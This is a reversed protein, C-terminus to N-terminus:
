GERAEVYDCVVRNFHRVVLEEDQLHFVRKAGSGIVSQIKEHTFADERLTDRLGCKGFEQSFVEGANRAPPNYIRIEWISRDVALPWINYTFYTGRLLGVFLNPFVHYLDFAGHWKMGEGKGDADEVAFADFSSAGFRMAAAAVPSPEYGQPAHSSVVAHRGYRKLAAHRFLQGKSAASRALTKEHLYPVHWGELQAETLLKWNVTEDVEYVYSLKMSEFPYAGFAQDVPSLYDALSEGPQEALNVFLFGRWSECAIPTLGNQAPDVDFFRDRDTVHVLRGQTDYTWAHFRCVLRGDCHGREEWAVPNGRHSCMNHFARVQGDEGRVLLVSTRGVALDRVLYDGPRALEEERGVNIWVRRFIREREREFFEASVYSEVAVPATGLEPYQDTFRHVSASDNM